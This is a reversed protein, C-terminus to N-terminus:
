GSESARLILGQREHRGRIAERIVPRWARRYEAWSRASMECTDLGYRYLYLVTRAQGISLHRSARAMAACLRPLTM